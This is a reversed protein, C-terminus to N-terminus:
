KFRFDKFEMLICEFQEEHIVLSDKFAQWEFSKRELTKMRLNGILILELEFIKMLNKQLFKELTCSTLEINKHKETYYEVYGEILDEIISRIVSCDQDRASASGAVLTSNPKLKFLEAKFCELNNSVSNSKYSQSQPTKYIQQYEQQTMCITHANRSALRKGEFAILNEIKVDDFANMKILFCENPRLLSSSIKLIVTSFITPLIIKWHM